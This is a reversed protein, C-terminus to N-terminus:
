TLFNLCMQMGPNWIFLLHEQASFILCYMYKDLIFATEELFTMCVLQDLYSVFEM